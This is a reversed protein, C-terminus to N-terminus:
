KALLACINSPKISNMSCDTNESILWIVVVLARAIAALLHGADHRHQKLEALLIGAHGTDHHAIGQHELVLPQLLAHVQKEVLDLRDQALRQAVTGKALAGACRAQIGLHQVLALLGLGGDDVRRQAQGRLDPQFPKLMPASASTVPHALGAHEGVEARALFQLDRHDALVVRAELLLHEVRGHALRAAQRAQARQEFQIFRVETSISEPQM